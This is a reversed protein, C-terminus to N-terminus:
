GVRCWTVVTMSFTDRTKWGLLASAWETWGFGPGVPALGAGAKVQYNCLVVGFGLQFPEEFGSWLVDLDIRLGDRLDM